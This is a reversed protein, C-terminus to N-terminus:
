SLEEVADQRADAPLQYYQIMYQIQRFPHVSLYILLPDIFSKQTAEILMEIMMMMIMMIIIMIYMMMIMMM